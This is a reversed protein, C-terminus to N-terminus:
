AANFTLDIDFTKGQNANNMNVGNFWVYLTVVAEGDRAISITGTETEGAAVKDALVGDVLDDADYNGSVVSYDSVALVVNGSVLIYCIDNAELQSGAVPNVSASVTATANGNNLLTFTQKAVVSSSYAAKTLNTAGVNDQSGTYWEIAEPTATLNAAPAAPAATGALVRTSTAFEADDESNKILLNSGGTTATITGAAATVEANATYWAFTATSMAVVLVLTMVISLLLSKKM